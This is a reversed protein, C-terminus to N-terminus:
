TPLGHTEVDLGHQLLEPRQSAVYRTECGHDDPAREVPFPNPARAGVILRENAAHLRASIADLGM